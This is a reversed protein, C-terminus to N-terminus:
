PKEDLMFKGFLTGLIAILAYIKTSQARLPIAILIDEISVATTRTCQSSEGTIVIRRIKPWLV